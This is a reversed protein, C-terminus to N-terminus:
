VKETINKLPLYMDHEAIHFSVCIVNPKQLFVKIYCLHGKIRKGFKWVPSFSPMENPDPGEYYDEVELKLLWDRKQNEKYWEMIAMLQKNKERTDYFVQGGFITLCLKMQTLFDNVEERTASTNAM